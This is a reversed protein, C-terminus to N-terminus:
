LSITYDPRDVTAAPTQQGLPSLEPLPKVGMAVALENAQTRAEALQGRTQAILERSRDLKAPDAGRKTELKTELEDLTRDIRVIERQWDSVSGIMNDMGLLLDATANTQQFIDRHLQDVIANDAEM